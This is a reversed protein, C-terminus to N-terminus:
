EYYVERTSDILDFTVRPDNWTKVDLEIFDYLDVIQQSFHKVLDNSWIHNLGNHWYEMLTHNKINGVTIPLYNSIGVDGNAKIEICSPNDRITNAIYIHELPDGWEILLGEELYQEKKDNILKQFLLYEDGSLELNEFNKLGRGMPILPMLRITKCCIEMIIDVFDNFESLNTKNPAFAVATKIGENQLYKLANLAKGFSGKCNRFNDHTKSSSGDVSIQVFGIGSKKLRKALEPTMTFGNTVMNVRINEKSLRTAVYELYPFLTPEGGCICMTYPNVEIIQNVVNEVDKFCLEENFVHINSDGSSNYCHKCKFNCRNTVDWSIMLPSKLKNLDFDNENNLKM